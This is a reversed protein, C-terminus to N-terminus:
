RLIACMRAAAAPIQTNIRGLFIKFDLHVSIRNGALGSPVIKSCFSISNNHSTRPLKVAQQAIKLDPIKPKLIARTWLTNRALKKAITWNTSVFNPPRSRPPPDRGGFGRRQIRPVRLGPVFEDVSYMGFAALHEELVCRGRNPINKKPNGRDEIHCVYGGPCLLPSSNEHIQSTTCYDDSFCAATTWGTFSMKDRPHADFYQAKSATDSWAFYAAVPSPFCNQNEQRLRGAGALELWVTSNLCFIRLAGERTEWLSCRGALMRSRILCDNLWCANM